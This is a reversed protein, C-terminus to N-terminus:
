QGIKLTMDLLYDSGWISNNQPVVEYEIVSAFVHLWM